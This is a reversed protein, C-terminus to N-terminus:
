INEVQQRNISVVDYGSDKLSKKLQEDGITKGKKFWFTVKEGELDVKLKKVHEHDKFKKEIGQACFSCVMGNIKVEAKEFSIQEAFGISTSLLFLITVLAKM